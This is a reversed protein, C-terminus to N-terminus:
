GEQSPVETTPLNEHDHGSLLERYGAYRQSGLLHTISEARDRIARDEHALGKALIKWPPRDSSAYFQFRDEPHTAMLYLCELTGAPDRDFVEVLQEMVWHGSRDLDTVPIAARLIPLSWAPDFRGSAFWWGFAALEPKPLAALGGAKGVRWEWMLRFHDIVPDPTGSKPDLVHRVVNMAKGALEPSANEFFLSLLDDKDLSVKEWAYLWIMHEAFRLEPGYPSEPNFGADKLRRASEFYMEKLPDFTSPSLEAYCVYANWAADRLAAKEPEGPFIHELHATVWDRDVHVLYPLWRGVVAKDTTRESFEGAVVHEELVARVEPFRELGVKKNDPNEERIWLLFRMVCHLAVGRVTNLSETFTDWTRNGATESEREPTPDPDRALPAIIAWITERHEQALNKVRVLIKEVLRAVEMRVPRRNEDMAFRLDAGDPIVRGAIERPQAVVWRCFSLVEALPIEKGAEVLRWFASVIHRHYTPDLNEDEFHALEAAWQEPSQEILGGITAGLGEPTPKRWGMEPVWSKLRAVLEEKPMAAIEETTLPSEPITFEMPGCWSFFDPPISLKGFEQRLAALREKWAPVLDDELALLMRYQWRKRWHERREDDLDDRGDLRPGAAIAELLVTRGHESLEGFRTKLLHFFEHHLAMEYILGKLVIREEVLDPPVCPTVRLLHLVLRKSLTTGDTELKEVIERLAGSGERAIFEAADRWATVLSNEIRYDLNGPHDEIAPRHIIDMDCLSTSATAGCSIRTFKELCESLLYFTKRPAARLVDPLNTNIIEQYCHEDISTKPRRIAAYPSDDDHKDESPPLDPDPHFDLLAELLCIAADPESNTALRSALKGLGIAMFDLADTRDQVWRAEHVAWEAALPPPLKMAAEVLERHIDPDDSRGAEMLLELIRSQIDPDSTAAIRSLYDAQPWTAYVRRESNAFPLLALPPALLGKERLAPLWSPKDLKRFFYALAMPDRPLRSGLDRPPQELLLIRDVIALLTFYRYRIRDALNVILDVANAFFEMFVSDKEPPSALGARHAWRYFHDKMLNHWIVSVTDGDTVKLVRCANDIRRRLKGEEPGRDDERPSLLELIAGIVERLLHAVLHTQSSLALKSTHMLVCADRFLSAPGPGLFALNQATRDMKARLDDPVDELGNDATGGPCLASPAPAQPRSRM